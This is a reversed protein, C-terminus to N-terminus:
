VRVDVGEKRLADLLKNMDSMPVNELKDYYGIGVAYEAWELIAADTKRGKTGNAWRLLGLQKASLRKGVVM